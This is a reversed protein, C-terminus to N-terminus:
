IIKFNNKNMLLLSIAYSIEILMDATATLLNKAVKLTIAQDIFHSLKSSKNILKNEYKKLM